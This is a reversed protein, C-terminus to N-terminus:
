DHRQKFLSQSFLALENLKWPRLPSIWQNKSIGNKNSICSDWIMLLEGLKRLMINSASTGDPKRNGNQNCHSWFMDSRPSYNLAPRLTFAHQAHNPHRTSITARGPSCLRPREMSGCDPWLGWLLPRGQQTRSREECNCFTVSHWLLTTFMFWWSDLNRLVM